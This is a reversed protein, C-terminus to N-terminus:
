SIGPNIRKVDCKIFQVEDEGLRRASTLREVQYYEHEFLLVSGRLVPADTALWVMSDADATELHPQRTLTPVNRWRCALTLSTGAERDGYANKVTIVLQCTQVLYGDLM